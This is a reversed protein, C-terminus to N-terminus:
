VADTKAVQEAHLRKKYELLADSDDFIRQSNIDVVVTGALLDHIVARTYTVCLIILQVIGFIILILSGHIGIMNFFIMLLIYVPIMTELTFKGLVTRIFLQINTLKVADTRMVGLGFIKKGITQGNGLRMPVLFELILYALLISFTLILMTLNLVMNYAHIAEDDALLADYAADYAQRESKTMAEYEEGTIEFQVEYENEYRSYAEQLTKNYGDYGFAVSLLYGVGVVLIVLLLGDFIFSSIRKWINAKQLDISM